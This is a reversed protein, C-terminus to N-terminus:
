ESRATKGDTSRIQVPMGEIPVALPSVVIQDGAGLGSSVIIHDAARWAIDVRRKSLTQDETVVWVEDGNSVAARPVAVTDALVKGAIKVDVYAGPLLPLGGDIPDMPHEIEVLIQATRTQPDLAGALRLVQGTRELDIGNLRQVVQVSSGESGNIGPIDIQALDEVPVSVQVWFADTGVLTAVPAAPGVVQGIDISEQTILANFPARLSTRELALQAQELGSRAAEVAREANALQPKRLALPAEDASRGEGLLEWERAAISQRGRELQLELEAQDVQSQQQRVTLHYDRSDIRALTQGKELRGGPLLDESQYVIKGSVEPMLQIQQAAQVSGTASVQAVQDAPTAGIVDVIAVRPPPESREAAPALLIMGGVCVLSGAIFVGAIAIQILSKQM